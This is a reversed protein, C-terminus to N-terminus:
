PENPGTLTPTSILSGPTALSSVTGGWRPSTSGSESGTEEEPYWSTATTPSFDPNIRRGMWTISPAPNTLDLREWSSDNLPKRTLSTKPRGVISLPLSLPWEESLTYNLLSKCLM